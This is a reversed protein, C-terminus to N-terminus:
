AVVNPAQSAQWSKFARFVTFGIALLAVYFWFTKGASMGVSAAESGSHSWFILACIAAVASTALPLMVALKADLKLLGQSIAFPVGATALSGIFVIVGETFSFANVSKGDLMHGMGKMAEKADSGFSISWWPLFCLVATAAAGGVLLKEEPTLPRSPTSPTAPPPPPPSAPTETEM